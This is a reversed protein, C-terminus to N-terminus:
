SNESEGQMRTPNAQMKCTTINTQLKNRKSSKQKRTTSQLKQKRKCNMEMMINAKV